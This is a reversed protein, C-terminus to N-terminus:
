DLKELEFSIGVARLRDVLGDGLAVSPTTVGGPRDHDDLCCLASQGLMKATASYGPDSDAHVTVRHTFVDHGQPRGYLKFTFCGNEREIKTPGEGPKPLFWATIVRTLAFVQSVLGLIFWLSALMAKFRSRTRVAEHYNLGTSEFGRLAESRRVIRTNIGAMLFPATWMDLAEIYRAQKQDSPERTKPLPRPNLSMPHALIRAIKRDRATKVLNQISAFTGGSLGGRIKTLIGLCELKESQTRLAQALLHVGLDSPISDFGCCHIIRAGSAQAADHHTDITHRIWQTEGTIDVYDTGHQACAAVLPSGLQAFPGATSAVVKTQAALASMADDSLSDAVIIKASPAFETQIAELKEKNRGAIAWNISGGHAEIHEAVLRGTFGTAGMIILDFTKTSQTM